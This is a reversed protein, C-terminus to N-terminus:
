DKTAENLGISEERSPKIKKCKIRKICIASIWISMVVMLTALFTVISSIIIYLVYLINETSNTPLMLQIGTQTTTNHVKVDLICVINYKTHQTTKTRILVFM